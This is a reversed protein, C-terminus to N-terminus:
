VELHDSVSNSLADNIADNIADDWIFRLTDIKEM